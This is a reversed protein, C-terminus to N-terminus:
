ARECNPKSTYTEESRRPPSSSRCKGPSRACSARISCRDWTFLLVGPQDGVNCGRLARSAHRAGPRLPDVLAAVRQRMAASMGETLTALAIVHPHAVREAAKHAEAPPVFSGKGILGHGAAQFAVQLALARAVRYPEGADLALLLHRSQCDAARIPDVMSLGTVVSWCTDIRQLDRDVVDHADRQVFELGRWWLRLRAIMLSLFASRPGRRLPVRVAALVSRIVALGRDIHGGVLLQEAARRQLDLRENPSATEAAQLYFDAAEAPRGANTLAVALNRKWENTAEPTPTLALARRYFHAAREFALSESARVAARAAETSARADDCAGVYHEFLDEPDLFQRAVLAAAMARHIGKVEEPEVLM